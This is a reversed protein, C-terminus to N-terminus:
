QVRLSKCVSALCFKSLQILAAHTCFVTLFFLYVLFFTRVLEGTISFLNTQAKELSHLSKYNIGWGDTRFYSEGSCFMLREADLTHDQTAAKCFVHHIIRYFSIIKNGLAPTLM